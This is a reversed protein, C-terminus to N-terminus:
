DVWNKVEIIKDWFPHPNLSIAGIMEWSSCHEQVGTKSVNEETKHKM